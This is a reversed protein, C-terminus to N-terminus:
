ATQFRERAALFLLLLFFIPAGAAALVLFWNSKGFLALFLVLYIFDRRSAADLMRALTQGPVTAVSTFLPGSDKKAHMVRWYVFWASGLNGLAAAVGLLLPWFAGISLSWGIAMCTFVVIHVVNDGWYDIIGGFRSEQFRLRALEGDCGDLISHALFLLAGITQWLWHASLFFPAGCLGIGVSLLTIQNPTIGTSALRRAIRLSIPREVNRAMFGDTDKVLGRLLRWEADYVDAPTMVVMPDISAPIAAPAGFHRALREQAATLDYAGKDADLLALADAAVSAALLIIKHPIAAWRAPETQIETLRALWDPEALIAAHAIILPGPQQALPDTLTGWNSIATIGAPAARERALLYIRSYGARGAAIVTRRALGLGLVRPEGGDSFAPAIPSASADPLLVM